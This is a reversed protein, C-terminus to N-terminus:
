EYSLTGGQEAVFAAWEADTYNFHTLELGGFGYMINYEDTYYSLQYALMSCATSGALPIRYYLKLYNEEMQSLISLKTHFDANAYPGTADMALSWAQWTMTVDEGNVKLTLSTSTPDWCGAEHISVYDPDCYVRFNRFPYFAAGGWAGYGIAFEGKAVDGYRDEINGILELEISGFGTGELAANLQKNIIEGIKNDSSELAGKKFGVRIKIPEGATYLGEAVLEECAQKFLMQAETVNYGNISDYADKLTAYPTGEGYQVEYLNVIATMAEESNRYSSTPDNYVDYYYLSNLMSYAPKYGATASVYEQRDIALSMAKRFNINSLVVSNQNGKSEDMVKLNDLGCNFFFSMTYTEDVKYLQESTSYTVLDDAEPEWESLDGKLFAQKAAANDMVDIVVSTAQYRQIHEGDVEYPTMSLLSGDAQKEFGYWEPNQVFVIQKDKQLSALKYTGYSMTTEMSTGYNTTVLTGTTDKGAEYLPEYVLWNSTCSTLFYNRDIYSNNVYRITYDDVKYCGVVDYDVVPYEKAYVTYNVAEAETEGWDAVATIVGIIDQLSEDNLPIRGAEDAKAALANYADMGFYAEGYGDVYDKLTNGSLWSLGDQLAVYVPSGDALTYNGEDNKVMNEIATGGAQTGNDLYAVSGAFYYDSGGAVASEGSYYLNARYNKMAPDLMAKMSYIYTDANIPTGDEWRMEPNLKIEYVYGETIDAATKGEPLICGYKEVDDQHEATVDNIETAAEFIWQYVGEESNLVQMTALPTSLYSLISDDANTEWTHPNWNNGLSSSYTHYTYTAPEEAEAFAATMGAVLCLALMLALLKKM